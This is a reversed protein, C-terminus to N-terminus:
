HSALMAMMMMAKNGGITLQPQDLIERMRPELASVLAAFVDYAPREFLDARILDIRDHLLRRQEPPRLM